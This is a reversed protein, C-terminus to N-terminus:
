KNPGTRLMNCLTGNCSIIVSDAKSSSGESMKPMNCQVRYITQSPEGLKTDIVEIKKPNCNYLLAVARAEASSAQAPCSYM